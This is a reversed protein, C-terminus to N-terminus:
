LAVIEDIFYSKFNRKERSSGCFVKRNKVNKSNIQVKYSFTEIKQLCLFNFFIKKETLKSVEIENKESKDEM